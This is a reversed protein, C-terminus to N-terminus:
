RAEVRLMYEQGDDHAANPFGLDARLGCNSVVLVVHDLQGPDLDRLEGALELPRGARPGVRRMAAVQTRTLESTVDALVAKLSTDPTPRSGPQLRVRLRTAGDKLYFRYYRCALHDLAGRAEGRAGPGLRFSETIAREGFRDYIEPAYLPSKSDFFFYSDVCYGSGFFDGVEPDASSFVHREGHFLRVLTELATDRRVSETWVRTLFPAKMEKELYRVFMGTQYRAAQDDLPKEPMDVWDAAFRLGDLNGPLVCTEMHLAFGEDVWEWAGSYLDSLPRERCNFAHALEHVASASAYQVEAEATPFDTRCPLAIYPIDPGPGYDVTTFPRPDSPFIKALDFIYILTKGEIGVAPPRRCYPSETLLRYAREFADLYILPL